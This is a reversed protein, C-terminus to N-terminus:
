RNLKSRKRFGRVLNPMGARGRNQLLKQNAIISALYPLTGEPSKNSLKLDMKTALM